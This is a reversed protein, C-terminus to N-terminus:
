GKVNGAALKELYTGQHIPMRSLIYSSPENWKLDTLFYIWQEFLQRGIPHDQHRPIAIQFILTNPTYGMTKLQYGSGVLFFGLVSYIMVKQKVSLTMNKLHQWSRKLTHM